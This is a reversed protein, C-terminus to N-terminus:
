LYQGLKKDTHKGMNSTLSFILNLVRPRWKPDTLFYVHTNRSKGSNKAKLHSTKSIVRDLQWENELKDFKLHPM